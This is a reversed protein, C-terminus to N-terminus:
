MEKKLDRLTSQAEDLAAQAAFLSAELEGLRRVKENELDNFIEDLTETVIDNSEMAEKVKSVIQEKLHLAIRKYTETETHWTQHSKYQCVTVFDNIISRLELIDDYDKNTKDM